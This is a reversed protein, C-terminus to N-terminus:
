LGSKSRQRLSKVDHTNALYYVKTEIFISIM